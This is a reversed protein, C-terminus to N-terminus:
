SCCGPAPRLSAHPPAALDELIKCDVAPGGICATDCSCVFAMLGAELSKLEALKRRVELLHTQAIDRVEACPQQPQDILGVLERIQDISFDFERCRRIFLLRRVAAEDYHRQGADTRPAPPLLGIEEYYRVAPVSAGTRRAVLGISLKANMAGDYTVWRRTPM